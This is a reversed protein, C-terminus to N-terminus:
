QPKGISGHPLRPIVTSEFWGRAQPSRIPSDILVMDDFGFGNLCAGPTVAVSGVQLVQNLAAALDADYTIILMNM